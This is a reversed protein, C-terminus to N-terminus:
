SLFVLALGHGTALATPTAVLTGINSASTNLAPATEFYSALISTAWRISLVSRRIVARAMVLM